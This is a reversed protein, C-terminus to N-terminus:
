GLAPASGAGVPLQSFQVALLVGWDGGGVHPLHALDFSLPSGLPGAPGQGGGADPTVYPLVLLLLSVCCVPNIFGTDTLARM